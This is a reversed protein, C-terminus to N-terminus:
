MWSKMAASLRVGGIAEHGVDEGAYTSDHLERLLAPFSRVECGARQPENADTLVQDCVRWIFLREPNGGDQV